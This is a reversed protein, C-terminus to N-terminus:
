QGCARKIAPRTAVVTGNGAVTIASYVSPDAALVNELLAEAEPGSLGTSELDTATEAAVDDIATLSGTVTGQLSGLVSLMEAHTTEDSASSEPATTCGACLLCTVLLLTIILVPSKM